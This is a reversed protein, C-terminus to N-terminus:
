GLWDSWSRWQKPYSKEPNSPINAPRASSKAWARWAIQNPLRLTRAFDRAETFPLFERDFVAKKGTGLFDGWGTWGRKRYCIEPRAPVNAPRLPLHPMEGRKYAYWEMQTKIGLSQVFSRATEYPVMKSGLGISSDGAGLWHAIGCWGADRYVVAPNSPINAPRPPLSSIKGASYRRWEKWSMLGLRVVYARAEEYPLFVRNYVAIRRTGLFHSMGKWEDHYVQHPNSPLQPPRPPLGPIGATAWDRFQQATRLRLNQVFASADRYSFFIPM